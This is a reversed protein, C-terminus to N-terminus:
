SVARWVAGAWVFQSQWIQGLPRGLGCSVGVGFGIGRGEHAHRGVVGFGCGLVDDGAPRHDILGDMIGPKGDAPRTGRAPVEQVGSSTVTAIVRGASADHVRLRPPRLLRTRFPVPKRFTCVSHGSEAMMTLSLLTLHALFVFPFITASM